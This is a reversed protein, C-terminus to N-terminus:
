AHGCPQAERGGGLPAGFGANTMGLPEFVERRVLEEWSTGTAEELMAGITHGTM